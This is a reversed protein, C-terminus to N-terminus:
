NFFYSSTNRHLDCAAVELSTSMEILGRNAGARDGSAGERMLSPYEELDKCTNSGMHLFSPFSQGALCEKIDSIHNLRNNQVCVSNVEHDTESVSKAM